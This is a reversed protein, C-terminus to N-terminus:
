SCFLNKKEDRGWGRFFNRGGNKPGCRHMNPKGETESTWTCDDDVNTRIQNIWGYKVNVIMKTKKSRCNNDINLAFLRTVSILDM